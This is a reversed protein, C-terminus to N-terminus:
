LSTCEFDGCGGQGLHKSDFPKFKIIANNDGEILTSNYLFASGITDVADEHAKFIFNDKCDNLGLSNNSYNLRFNAFITDQIFTKSDM